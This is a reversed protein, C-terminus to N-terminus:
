WRTSAAVGTPTLSVQLDTTAFLAAGTGLLAIAGLGEAVALGRRPRIEFAYLDEARALDEEAMYDDYAASAQSLNYVSAAGLGLGAAVAAGDLM